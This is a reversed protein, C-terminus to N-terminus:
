ARSGSQRHWGSKVLLFFALLILSVGLAASPLGLVLGAIFLGIGSAILLFGLFGSWVALRAEHPAHIWRHRYSRAFGVTGALVSIAVISLGAAVNRVPQSQSGSESAGVALGLMLFGGAAKITFLRTLQREVPEKFPLRSLALWNLVLGGVGLLGGTLALANRM